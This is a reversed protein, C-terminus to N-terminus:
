ITEGNIKKFIVQFDPEEIPDLRSSRDKALIGSTPNTIISRTGSEDVALYLVEDYLAPLKLQIKQAPIMPYLRDEFNEKRTEALAIIIVNVGKLDRFAKAVAYMDESYKAWLKFGDKASNFEPNKGLEAVIMEGLETLSDIAVTDYKDVNETAITYCERLEAMSRPSLVDINEAGSLSLEGNELSILLTKGATKLMSTKGNGSGSFLLVKIGNHTISDALSKIKM